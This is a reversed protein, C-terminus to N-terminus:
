ANRKAERKLNYQLLVGEQLIDLEVHLDQCYTDFVYKQHCWPCELYAIGEEDRVHSDHMLPGVGCLLCEQDEEGM